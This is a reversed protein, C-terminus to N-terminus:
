NSILTSFLHSLFKFLFQCLNTVNHFYFILISYFLIFRRGFVVELKFGFGLGFM